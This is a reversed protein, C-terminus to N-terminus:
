TKISEFPALFQMACVLTNGASPPASKIFNAQPIRNLLLQPPPAQESFHVMWELHWLFLLHKGQVTCAHGNGQWLIANRHNCTKVQLVDVPAPYMSDYLYVSNAPKGGRGESVSKHDRLKWNLFGLSHVYGQRDPQCAACTLAYNGGSNKNKARCAHSAFAIAYYAKFCPHESHLYHIDCTTPPPQKSSTGIAVYALMCLMLCTHMYSSCQVCTCCYKIMHLVIYVSVDLVTVKM